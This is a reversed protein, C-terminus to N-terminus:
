YGEAQIGGFTHSSQVAKDIAMTNGGINDNRGM